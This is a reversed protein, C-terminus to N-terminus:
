EYGLQKCLDGNVSAFLEVHRPEFVNRWGKKEKRYHSREGGRRAVDRRRMKEKTYRQLVSRLTRDDVDLDCHEFVKRYESFPDAILDEFRVILLHAEGRHAWWTRMFSFKLHLERICYAIGQPEDLQRLRRRHEPVNGMPRHTYKMSHYWSVVIDRPDRIVYFTKYREPKQIEDYLPYSVYLGPVFTYRPFRSKFEGVEYRFQPHVRLGSNQRIDPDSFVAKIWQSGTKQVCAHYVNQVKGAETRLQRGWGRVFLGARGVRKKLGVRDKM